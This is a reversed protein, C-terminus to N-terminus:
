EINLECNEKLSKSFEKAEDFTMKGKIQILANDEGGAILLFERLTRGESRVFMRFDQNMEKIRMFEEYDDLNIRDIIKKFNNESTIIENNRALIRIQTINDPLSKNCDPVSNFCSGLKLLNGSVTIVVYGDKDSYENFLKDISKQGFLQGTLTLVFILLLSRKMIKLKIHNSKYTHRSYGPNM